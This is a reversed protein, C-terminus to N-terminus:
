LHKRIWEWIDRKVEDSNLEQLLEHRADPYLVLTIDKCGAELYRDKTKTVGTGFDGLPDRSGSIFLMPLDKPTRMMNARKNLGIAGGVMDRYFAATFNITIRDSALYADVEREDRTLWDFLTREPRFARNFNGTLLRSMRKSYGRLGILRIEALALWYGIKALAGMPGSAASHIAGKVLDGYQQLYTRVILSGMSHGLLFVPIGPHEAKVQQLVHFLDNVVLNWGDRDAFHGRPAGNAAFTAGHGRQDYAYVAIDKIRLWNALPAYREGYEGMGHVILLIGEIRGDEPLWQNVHLRHGDPCVIVNM